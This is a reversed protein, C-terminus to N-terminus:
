NYPNTKHQFQALCCQCGETLRQSFRLCGAPRGTIGRIIGDDLASAALCVAPTYHRSFYCRHFCLQGNDAFSMRIGINLYLAKVVRQATAESRIFFLRRLLSGLRYARSNMRQLLPDDAGNRLHHSTYEAYTRLADAHSLTWLRRSPQRLAGATLQMLVQLEIRRFLSGNIM